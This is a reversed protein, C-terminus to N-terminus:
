VDHWINWRSDIDECLLRTKLHWYHLDIRKLWFFISSYMFNSLYFRPYNFYNEDYLLVVEEISKNESDGSNKIEVNKM